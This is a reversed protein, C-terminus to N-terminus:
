SSKKLAKLYELDTVDKPRVSSKLQIMLDVDAFPIIVGQISVKIISKSAEVYEIGCAKKMLDVVIEDAVRIVEYQNIEGPKLESVASDQLHSLADIVARENQLSVEVLLDIDETARVFGHHVMAMGGIVVYKAKKHNLQRCLGILDNLTPPRSEKPDDNQAVM